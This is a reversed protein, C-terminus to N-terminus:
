LSNKEGVSNYHKGKKLVAVFGTCFSTIQLKVSNANLSTQDLDNCAGISSEAGTHHYKQLLCPFHHLYSVYFFLTVGLGMSHWSM